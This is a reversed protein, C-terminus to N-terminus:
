MNLLYKFVIDANPSKIHCVIGDALSDSLVHLTIRFYRQLQTVAKLTDELCVQLVEYLTYLM